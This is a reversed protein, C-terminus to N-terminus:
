AAMSVAPKYDTFLLSLADEAVQWRLRNKYRQKRLFMKVKPNSRNDLIIRSVKRYDAGDMDNPVKLWDCIEHIFYWREVPANVSVANLLGPWDGATGADLMDHGKQTLLGDDNVKIQGFMGIVIGAAKDFGVEIEDKDDTDGEASAIIVYGLIPVPLSIISIVFDTIGGNLSFITTIRSVLQPLFMLGFMICTLKVLAWQEKEIAQLRAMLRARNKENTIRYANKIRKRTRALLPFVLYLSAILLFVYSVISLSSMSYYLNGDLASHLFKYWPPATLQLFIVVVSITLSVTDLPLAVPMIVKRAFRDLFSEAKKQTEQPIM